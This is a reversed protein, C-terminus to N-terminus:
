HYEFYAEFLISKIRYFFQFNPVTSPSFLSSIVFYIRPFCPPHTITSPKMLPKSTKHNRTIGTQVKKAAVIIPNLKNNKNTSPIPYLLIPTQVEEKKKPQIIKNHKNM